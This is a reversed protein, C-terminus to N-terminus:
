AIVMKELTNVLRATVKKQDYGERRAIEMATAHYRRDSLMSDLSHELRAELQARRLAVGAGLREMNNGCMLQEMHTPICLSPVGSLLTASLTGLNANNIALAMGSLLGSLKIKESYIRVGTGSYTERVDAAIGPVFAVVEAGCGDLVGLVLPTEAGPTLYVFVRQERQGSWHVTEGEDVLFLPGISRGNKRGQYHDLEPLTALLSLNATVAQYLYSMRTGGFDGRVKNVNDLLRNETELLIERTLKLWPRFSPYPSAEPPSEFGTSLKLCPIGFMGAALTAVPAHQSLLADPKYLDCVTRWGRVMGGLVAADGFGAQALIDAFSAAERRLGALGASFPAQMYCFGEGDLFRSAAGVDKVTFLVEHGHERLARAINLLISLHGLRGGQEWAFLFRMLSEGRM